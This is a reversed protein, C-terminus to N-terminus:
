SKIITGHRFNFLVSQLNRYFFAADDIGTELSQITLRKPIAASRNLGFLQTAFFKKFSVFVYYGYRPNNLTSSDFYLGFFTIPVQSLEALAPIWKDIDVWLMSATSINEKFRIKPNDQQFNTINPSWAEGALRSGFMSRIYPKDEDFFSIQLFMNGISCIDTKKTVGM